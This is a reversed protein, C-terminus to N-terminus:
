SAVELARKAAREDARIATEWCAGCAVKGIRRRMTHERADCLAAARAALPHQGTFHDPEWARGPVARGTTKRARQRSLRVAEVGDGVSVQGNRIKQRSPEDLELLSLYYSVTSGALGIRRAIQAATMGRNRLAGMAEAKEVPGLDRRQCNEVLMIEIDKAPGTGEMILIPVKDLGALRAAATRRHGALIVFQGHRQPHPRVVIPQLIGHERISAALDALDGLDERINGPHEALRSIHCYDSM